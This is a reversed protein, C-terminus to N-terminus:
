AVRDETDRRSKKRNRKRALAQKVRRKQGPKLYFAHRKVEKIIDEQLVKRKFRRLANELTEGEQLRVEAMRFLGGLEVLFGTCLAFRSSNAHVQLSLTKGFLWVERVLLGVILALM